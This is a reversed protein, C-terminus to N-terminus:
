GIIRRVEYGRDTYYGSLETIIVGTNSNASHIFKGDGIYIGTHGISRNGSYFCLVDGPQLESPSVSRGNKAQDEAVRYLSIGFHGYVHYVFGSCDFGSAPDAGGWLYPRGLLEMAYAVVANPDAAAASAGSAGADPQSSSPQASPISYSGEKVYQSYVYGSRGDATVVTWDGSRGTVTVSNGFYFERIISATLSPGERFRVNNGSIYAQVPDSAEVAPQAAPSSQQTNQGSSAPASNRIVYQGYVFGVKGDIECKVWDDASGVITLAKGRNYTGLIKYTTGPGTRFRVYDGGISGTGSDQVTPISGGGLVDEVVSIQPSSAGSYATSSHVGEPNSSPPVTPSPSPEEAPLDPSTPVMESGSDSPEEAPLVEESPPPSVPESPVPTSLPAIVVANGGLSQLYQASIFGTEGGYQIEYWTGDLRDVISVVTGKTLCAKVSYGTGPGTRFNVYNATVAASEAHAVVPTFIFLLALLLATLKKNM